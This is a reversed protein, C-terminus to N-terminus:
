FEETVILKEPIGLAKLEKQVAEMMPPPGCLYFHGNKNSINKELFKESIYGHTYKKNNEKSLINVFGGGWYIKM